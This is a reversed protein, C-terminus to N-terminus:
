IGNNLEKNKCYRHSEAFAEGQKIFDSIEAPLHLQRRDGCNKCVYEPPQKHYDLIIHKPIKKM